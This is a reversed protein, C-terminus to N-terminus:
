QVHIQAPKEKKRTPEMRMVQSIISRTKSPFFFTFCKGLSLEKFDIM